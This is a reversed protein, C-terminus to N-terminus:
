GAFVVAGDDIHNNLSIKTHIEVRSTRNKM